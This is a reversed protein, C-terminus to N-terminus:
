GSVSSKESSIADCRQLKLPFEQRLPSSHNDKDPRTAFHVCQKFSTCLLCCMVANNLKFICIVVPSKGHIAHFTPQMIIDPKLTPGFRLRCSEGSACLGVAASHPAKIAKGPGSPPHFPCTTGHSSIWLVDKSSEGTGRAHFRSM